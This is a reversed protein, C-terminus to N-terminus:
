HYPHSYLVSLLSSLSLSTLIITTYVLFLCKEWFFNQRSPALRLPLTCLFHVLKFFIGCLHWDLLNIYHNIICLVDTIKIYHNMICLVDMIKIYHIVICLVDMIKIYHNIICLVDMINIYHNIICLVDM